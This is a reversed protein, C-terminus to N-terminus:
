IGGPGLGISRNNELGGSGPTVTGDIMIEQTYVQTEM